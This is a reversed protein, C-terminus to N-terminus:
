FFLRTGSPFFSRSSAKFFASLFAPNGSSMMTSLKLSLLNILDSMGDLAKARLSSTGCFPVLIVNMTTDNWLTYLSLSFFRYMLSKKLRMHRRACICSHRTSTPASKLRFTPSQFGSMSFLKLFRTFTASIYWGM